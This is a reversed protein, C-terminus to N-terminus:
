IVSSVRLRRPDTPVHGTKLLRAAPPRHQIMSILSLVPAQYGM